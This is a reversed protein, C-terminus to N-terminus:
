NNKDHSKASGMDYLTLQNHTIGNLYQAEAWSSVSSAWM